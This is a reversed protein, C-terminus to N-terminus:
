APHPFDAQGYFGAYHQILGRNSATGDVEHGDWHRIADRYGRYYEITHNKFVWEVPNEGTGFWMNGCCQDKMGRVFGYFYKDKTM